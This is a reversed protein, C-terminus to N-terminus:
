LSARAVYAFLMNTQEETFSPYKESFRRHFWVAPVGLRALQDAARCREELTGEHKLKHLREVEAFGEDYVQCAFDTVEQPLTRIFPWFDM